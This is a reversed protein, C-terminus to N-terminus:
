RGHDVGGCANVHIRFRWASGSFSYDGDAVCCTANSGFCSSSPRIVDLWARRAVHLQGRERGVIRLQRVFTYEDKKTLLVDGSAIARTVWLDTGCHSSEFGSVVVCFVCRTRACSGCGELKSCTKNSVQLSCPCIFGERVVGLRLRRYPVTM